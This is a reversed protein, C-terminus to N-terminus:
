ECIKRRLIAKLFENAIWGSLTHFILFVGGALCKLTILKEVIQSRSGDQRSIFALRLFCSETIISQLM